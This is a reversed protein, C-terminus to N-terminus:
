RFRGARAISDLFDGAADTAEADQTEIMGGARGVRPEAGPRNRPVFFWQAHLRVPGSTAVLNSRDFKPRSCRNIKLLGCILTPEKGRGRVHRTAGASPSLHSWALL